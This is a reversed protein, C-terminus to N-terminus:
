TPALKSRRLYVEDSADRRGELVHFQPRLADTLWPRSPEARSFDLVLRRYTFRWMGDRREIRDVYRGGFIEDTDEGQTQSLQYVLFYAEATAVDAEIEILAPAIHHHTTRYTAGMAMHQDVFGAVPGVYFGHDEVAGSHYLAELAPRDLRDAARAYRQYLEQIELKALLTEIEAMLPM